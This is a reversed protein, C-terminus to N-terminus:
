SFVSKQNECGITNKPLKIFIIPKETPRSAYLKLVSKAYIELSRTYYASVFVIPLVFVCSLFWGFFSMKFKLVSFKGYQTRRILYKVTEVCSLSPHACIVEDLFTLRQVSAFFFILGTIFLVAFLLVSAYFLVASMGNSLFYLVILLVAFSPLIYFAFEIFNIIFRFIHLYIIKLQLKLDFFFLVKLERKRKSSNYFVRRRLYGCIIFYRCSIVTGSFLFAYCIMKPFPLQAQEVLTATYVFFIILLAFMLKLLICFLDALYIKIGYDSNINRALNKVSSNKM